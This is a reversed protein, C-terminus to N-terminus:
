QEEAGHNRSTDLKGLVLNQLNFNTLQRFVPQRANWQDQPSKRNLVVVVDLKKGDGWYVDTAIISNDVRLQQTYATLPGSRQKAQNLVTAKDNKNSAEIYKSAFKEPSKGTTQSVNYFAKIEVGTEFFSNHEDRKDPSVVWTYSSQDRSHSLLWSKPRRIEVAFPALTQSIFAFQPHASNVNKLQNDISAHPEPTAPKMNAPPSSRTETARENTAEFTIDCNPLADQLAAIHKSSLDSNGTLVVSKLNKLKYLPSIDSLKNGFVALRELRPLKEIGDLSTLKNKNLNLIMLESCNELGDLSTLENAAAELYWLHPCERLATLDTIRKRAIFLRRVRGETDKDATPLRKLIAEASEQKSLPKRDQALLPEAVGFAIVCASMLIVSRRFKQTKM